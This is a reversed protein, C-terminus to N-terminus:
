IILKEGKAEQNFGGMMSPLVLIESISMQEKGRSHGKSGWQQLASWCCCATLTRCGALLGLAVFLRHLRLLRLTRVM